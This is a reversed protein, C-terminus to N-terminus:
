GDDEESDLKKSSLPAQVLAKKLRTSYAALMSAVALMRVGRQNKQHELWATIDDSAILLAGM